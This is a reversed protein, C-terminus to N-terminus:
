TPSSGTHDTALALDELIPCDPREDAHCASVLRQLMRRMSQLEAIRRELDEIHRAAIESVQRSSRRRNQWLSLLRAIEATSFGLSRARRIFRLMQVEREGYNRYNAATRRPAPILGLAEYHRIMKATVGSAAAARGINFRTAGDM